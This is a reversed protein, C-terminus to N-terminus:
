QAQHREIYSGAFTIVCMSEYIAHPGCAVGVARFAPDFIDHRHGRSPVGDDIILAMVVERADDRGYYIAEGLAENWTGYRNIRDTPWSGTLGRHGLKGTPGLEKVHDEAALSMGVSVKLLPLANAARLYRIAEKVASVGEQTIITPEGTREIEKDNYYQGWEELFSAYQGPDTRALNVERAVDEELTSLFDLTWGINPWGIATILVAPAAFVRAWM